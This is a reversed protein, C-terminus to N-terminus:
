GGFCGVMIVVRRKTDIRSAADAPLPRRRRPRGRRPGGRRERPEVRQGSCPPIQTVGLRVYRRRRARSTGTPTAAASSARRGRRARTVAVSVL